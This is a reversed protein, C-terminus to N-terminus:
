KRLEQEAATQERHWREWQEKERAFAVADPTRPRLRPLEADECASYIFRHAHEAIIRRMLDAGFPLLVSGRPQPREGIQCYLLHRPDLPLLIETGRSNWGGKFNYNGHAYYNLKVVPDDSTFWTVDDPAVLISWRHDVLLRVTRTLVHKMSYLWTARGVITEAKLVGTAQGPEHYATVRLPLYESHPAGVPAIPQGTCKAQELLGVADQLAGQLAADITARGRELHDILSRPTRVDQAAAFRILTQWESRTLKKDSTAKDLAKEAPTEFEQNLWREFEDSEAGGVIRTYLHSRFAAGKISRRRWEPMRADPVLVSYEFLHQRDPAFRKLYLCPVYHDHRALSM